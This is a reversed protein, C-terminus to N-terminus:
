ENSGRSSRRAKERSGFRWFRGRADLPRDSDLFDLFYGVAANPKKQKDAFGPRSVRSPLLSFDGIAIAIPSETKSLSPSKANPTKKKKAARSNREECLSVRRDEDRGLIKGGSRVVARREGNESEGRFDLITRCSDRGEERTTWAIALRNAAAHASTPGPSTPSAACM